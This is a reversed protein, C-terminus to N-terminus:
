VTPVVPLPLWNAVLTEHAMAEQNQKLIKGSAKNRELLLALLTSRTPTTLWDIFRTVEQPTLNWWLTPITDYVVWPADNGGIELANRLLEKASFSLMKIAAELDIRTCDVSNQWM